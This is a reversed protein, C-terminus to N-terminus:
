ESFVESNFPTLNEWKRDDSKLWKEDYHYVRSKHHGCKIEIASPDGTELKEANEESTIFYAAENEDLIVGVFVDDFACRVIVKERRM